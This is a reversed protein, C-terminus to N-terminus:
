LPGQQRSAGGSRLGQIIFVTGVVIGVLGVALGLACVVTETLESMPAPVDPEWHRLLPGDLGWHEVRCDYVEDESPLFTLYSIKLFSDDNKSLFSTESVGKTVSQGNSLWTINVVPPFINDVACLLTNPQGLTVPSKPFVTVEPVKNTAATSNSRKILVDLNHKAVGMNALARQPDFSTFESFMPLQWVTERKQLDVYFEEDGDFEHTFQGSPGYSQYVNIGYAAVHDAVIDECGCPSMMTTLALTGWILARNLTM